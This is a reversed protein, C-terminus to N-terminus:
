FKSKLYKAKFNKKHHTEGKKKHKEGMKTTGNWKHWVFINIELFFSM